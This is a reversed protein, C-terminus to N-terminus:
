FCYCWSVSHGSARETSCFRLRSGHPEIGERCPVRGKVRKWERACRVGMYWSKEAAEVSHGQILHTIDNFWRPLALGGARQPSKLNTCDSERRKMWCCELLGDKIVVWGQNFVYETSDVATLQLGGVIQMHLSSTKMRKTLQRTRWRRTIKTFTSEKHLTINTDYKLIKM